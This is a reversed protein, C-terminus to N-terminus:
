MVGRIGLWSLISALCIFYGILLVSYGTYVIRTKLSRQKRARIITAWLYALILFPLMITFLIMSVRAAELGTFLLIMFFSIIGAVIVAGSGGGLMLWLGKGPNPDQSEKAVKLGKLYSLLSLPALSFLGVDFVALSIIPKPSFAIIFVSLIAAALYGAVRIGSRSLWSNPALFLLGTCFQFILFWRVKDLPIYTLVWSNILLLAVGLSIATVKLVLAAILYNNYPKTTEQKSAVFGSPNVTAKM